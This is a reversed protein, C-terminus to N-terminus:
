SRSGALVTAVLLDGVRQRRETGRPVDSALAITEEAAPRLIGFCPGRDPVKESMSPRCVYRTRGTARMTAQIM